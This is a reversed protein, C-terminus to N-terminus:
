ASTRQLGMCDIDLCLGSVAEVSLLQSRSYEMVRNLSKTVMEQAKPDSSLNAFRASSSLTARQLTGSEDRYVLRLVPSEHASCLLIQAPGALRPTLQIVNSM